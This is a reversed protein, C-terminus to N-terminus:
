RKGCRRVKEERKGSDPKRLDPHSLVGPDDREGGGRCGQQAVIAGPGAGDGAVGDGDLGGPVEAVSQGLGAGKVLVCPQGANPSPWTSAAVGVQQEPVNFIGSTINSPAGV